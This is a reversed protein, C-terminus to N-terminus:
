WGQLWQRLNSLVTPNGVLETSVKPRYKEVWLQGGGSSGAQQPLRAVAVLGM